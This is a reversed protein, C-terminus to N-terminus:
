SITIDKNSDNRSAAFYEVLQIYWLKSLMEEMTAKM